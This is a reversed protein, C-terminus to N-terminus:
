FSIGPFYIASNKGTFYSFSSTMLPPAILTTLGMLSGLSGQLEGQENEPITSSTISQIATGQVGGIIYVLLAVLLLWQWETFAFPFIWDDYAHPWISGNTQRWTEKGFHRSVM